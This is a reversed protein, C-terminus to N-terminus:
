AYIDDLVSCFFVFIDFIVKIFSLVLNVICVHMIQCIACM